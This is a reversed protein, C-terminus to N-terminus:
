FARGVLGAALNGLTAGIFVTGIVLACGIMIEKYNM